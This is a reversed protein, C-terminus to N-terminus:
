GLAFGRCSGRVRRPMFRGPELEAWAPADAEAPQQAASQQPDLDDNTGTMDNVGCWGPSGPSRDADAPRDVVCAV